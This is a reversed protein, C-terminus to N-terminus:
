ELCSPSLRLVSAQTFGSFDLLTIAKHSQSQVPLENISCRQKIVKYRQLTWLVCKPKQCMLSRLSVPGPDSQMAYSKVECTQRNFYISGETPFESTRCHTYLSLSIWALFCSSSSSSSIIFFWMLQDKRQMCSLLQLEVSVCVISIIIFSQHHVIICEREGDRTRYKNIHTNRNRDEPFPLPIEQLVDVGMSHASQWSDKDHRDPPVCVCGLELGLVCRKRGRDQGATVSPSVNLRGSGTNLCPSFYFTFYLM